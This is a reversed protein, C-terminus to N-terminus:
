SCSEVVDGISTESITNGAIGINTPFTPSYRGLDKVTGFDLKLAGYEFKGGRMVVMGVLILILPLISLIFIGLFLTPEAGPSPWNLRRRLLIALALLGGVLTPIAAIAIWTERSWFSTHSSRNM